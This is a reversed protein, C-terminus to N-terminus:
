LSTKYFDSLAHLNPNIKFRRSDFDFYGQQKQCLVGIGFKTSIRVTSGINFLTNMKNVEYLYRM